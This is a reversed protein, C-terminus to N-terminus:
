FRLGFMQAFGIKIKILYRNLRTVELDL